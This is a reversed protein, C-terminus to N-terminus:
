KKRGKTKVKEPLKKGKSKENYEQVAVKGLAKRGTPSNGFRRQADSKWPM